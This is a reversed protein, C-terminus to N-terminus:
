VQSIKETDRIWRNVLLECRHRSNEMLILSTRRVDNLMNEDRMLDAIRFNLAGSRTGLM